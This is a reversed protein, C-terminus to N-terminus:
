YSLVSHTSTKTSHSEYDYESDDEDEYEDEYQEFQQVQQLQKFKEFREDEEDENEHQDYQDQEIQQHYQSQENEVTESKAYRSDNHVLVNQIKSISKFDMTKTRTAKRSLKVATVMSNVKSKLQFLLWMREIGAIKYGLIFCHIIFSVMLGTASINFYFLLIANFIFMPVDEAICM